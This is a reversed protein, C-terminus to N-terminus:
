FKNITYNIKLYFARGPKQVSRNDYAAKNFINKADFSLVFNEKPFAYSLGFDQIFQVPVKFHELGTNNTGQSMLYSFEDTYYTSYFLNLASKKQLFNKISYRLGSNMTFLPTNPINVLMGARNRSKLSLRSFNFNFGLNNQYSYNIQAEIGKSTTGEDFNSYFVLEDSSESIRDANSDFGILDQINRSFLNTSVTFGHNKTHFTGFRFGLNYNNSIEPKVALNSKINGAVDGFVETESPLRIAKEASTLFTIDPHIAYSVAFGYGNYVKNSSYIEDVVIRTGDTNEQFVPKTNLVKQRYHKGFLNVKLKDKIANLEYSLSYINKYLDSTQKFTNELLSKLEDRDERDLGSYLHNVLISHHKNIAYSLGTRVSAVNRNTTTLSPGGEQQSGWTYDLYEGNFGILRKGAWTYAQAVTDNVMTNRKGYLGTLNIDLGKILLNKKQYTLNALKADTESYRGKYPHLTMFAGHQIEKFDESATFGILFQDAWKVDTFGIQAMGGTSRYADYFRKAVIPTQSGDQAIDKVQGGWIKYDNDSYNVFASAKVTFGSKEFRYLGNFNSQATNFSGYSASANFHTKAGKHLVINIAGGLADDALHGPIVGKYVEINKIMSPPISNLSFSSGYMSIPIGDIFIRVSNGSLGNLSYQVHSGLGGNQRIKVGVTNNLLENTQINRLSAEKTEIINVAFGETELKTKKTKGNVTVEHLSETAELLTFNITVISENEQTELTKSQTRYGIFSVKITHKGATIKHITYEGNFDTLVGIKLDEILVSAYPLPQGSGDIVVGSITHAIKQSTASFFTLLLLVILSNKM